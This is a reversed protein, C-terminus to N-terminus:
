HTRLSHTKLEQQSGPLVHQNGFVDNRSRDGLAHSGSVHKHIAEPADIRRYVQSCRAVPEFLPNMGEVMKQTHETALLGGPRLARHFMRFVLRRQIDDLDPLVEKCVILSFDFCIPTMSLLDHRAFTVKDRIEGVAQVFGPEDIVQFYRYRIPYPLKKVEQEAHIGSDIRLGLRPDVDTAFIHLNRFDEEQMQERLLIALAHPGPGHSCSAHWINITPQGSIAPLAQEILLQLADTNQFFHFLGM